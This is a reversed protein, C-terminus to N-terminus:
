DLSNRLLRLRKEFSPYKAIPGLPAELAPWDTVPRIGQLSSLIWTECDVLDAPKVHELRTKFGMSDAISFVERRTISDLWPTQNDPACLVDGRWWVIASLAGECIFGNSDLIVAEDAGNLQARRRLQMCLQLDPGKVLPSSRPDPLEYTWLRAEGLQAPAERLRFHLPTDTDAHAEVRPFWRGSRPIAARVLDLFIKIELESCVSKAWDSFREFHADLSRSFGDEVLWSDVAIFPIELEPNAIPMLGGDEFRFFKGFEV